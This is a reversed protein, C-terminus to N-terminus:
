RWRRTTASSSAPRGTPSWWCSSWPTARLTADKEEFTFRRVDVDTAILPRAKGLLTEDFVYATMRLPIDTGTTPRTSRRRSCPISAGAQATLANKGGDSPRTTARARASRCARGQRELSSSRSRASSGTAASHQDPQVRDPLLHAVRRRDAHIGKDLDNTNRVTFGGSDAASRSRARRRRSTRPFAFGSTGSTSPPGSSRRDHRLPLGELGRTDLFYIAANSRRSAQVVRKFEDLNPDYIFGQSVLIVSKRGRTERWRAQLVRELIELTIRNRSTAQFYVETARGTVYPDGFSRAHRRHRREREQTVGYTEYRRRM